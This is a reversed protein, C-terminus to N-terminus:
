GAYGVPIYSLRTSYDRQSLGEVLNESKLRSHKHFARNMGPEKTRFPRYDLAILTIAFRM